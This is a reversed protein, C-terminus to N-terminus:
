TVCIIGEKKTVNINFKPIKKGRHLFGLFNQLICCKRRINLCFFVDGKGSLPILFLFVFFISKKM